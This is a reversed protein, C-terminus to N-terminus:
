EGGGSLLFALYQVVVGVVVASGLVVGGIATRRRAAGAFLAIVSVLGAGLGLPWSAIYTPQMVNDYLRSAPTTFHLSGAPAEEYFQPHARFCEVSPSADCPGAAVYTSIAPWGFVVLAWAALAIIATAFGAIAAIDAARKRSSIVVSTTRWRARTVGATAVVVGLAGAGILTFPAWGLWPSGAQGKGSPVLDPPLYLLLVGSLLAASAVIWMALWGNGTSRREM